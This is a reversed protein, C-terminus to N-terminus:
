FRYVLSVDNVIGSMDFEFYTSHTVPPGSSVYHTQESFGMVADFGAQASVAFHRGLPYQIGYFPSIGGFVTRTRSSGLDYQGLLAEQYGPSPQLPGATDMRIDQAYDYYHSFSVGGILDAGAFQKLKGKGFVYEAGLNIQWKENAQYYSYYDRRTSDNVYISHYPQPQNAYPGESYYAGARIRMKECLSRKYMLGLRQPRTSGGMLTVLVPAINAGFQNRKATSDAAFRDQSFCYGNTLVIVTLVIMKQM